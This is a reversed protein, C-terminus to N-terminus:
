KELVGSSRHRILRWDARKASEDFREFFFFDRADQDPHHRRNMGVVTFRTKEAGLADILRALPSSESADALTRGPHRRPNKRVAVKRGREIRSREKNQPLRPRRKERM